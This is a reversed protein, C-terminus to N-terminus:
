FAWLYIYCILLVFVVINIVSKIKWIRKTALDLEQLETRSFCVPWTFVWGAKIDKKHKQYFEKNYKILRFTFIGYLITSLIIGIMVMLISLEINMAIM